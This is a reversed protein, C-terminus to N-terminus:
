YSARVRLVTRTLTVPGPRVVEQQYWAVVPRGAKDLALAVGHFYVAPQSPLRPEWGAGTWSEVRLQPLSEQGSRLVWAVVPHGNPALALSLANSAGSPNGGAERREGVQSWRTGDWTHVYLHSQDRWAVVPRGAADLKLDAVDAVTGTGAEAELLGGVQVFATAELRGVRLGREGTLASWAMWTNGAADVGLGHVHADPYTALEMWSGNSTSAALVRATASQLNEGRPRHWAVLPTGDRRLALKMRIDEHGINDGADFSQTLLRWQTGELQRLSLRYYSASAVILNGSADLALRNQGEMGPHNFHEWAGGNWRAVESRFPTNLKWTEYTVIPHGDETLLLAPQISALLDHDAQLPTEGLLRATPAEWSWAVNSGLLPNGALDTVGATIVAELRSPLSLPQAVRLEVTSGDGTLVLLKRLAKGDSTRLLVTADTVSSPHLPESTTFSIAGTWEGGSEPAPTRSLLTPATRDVVVQLPPSEVVTDGRTARATLTYEGEALASVDWLYQYPVPLRALPEGDKMLDLADPEGEVFIQVTLSTRVHVTDTDPSTITVSLDKSNGCGTQAALLLALLASLGARSALSACM